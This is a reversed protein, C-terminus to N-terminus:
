FTQFCFDAAALLPLRRNAQWSEACHRDGTWLSRAPPDVWGRSSSGSQNRSASGNGHKDRGSSGMHRSDESTFTPGGVPGHVDGQMASRPLLAQVTGFIIDSQALLGGTCAGDRTVTRKGSDVDCGRSALPPVDVAVREVCDNSIFCGNSPSKMLVVRHAEGPEISVPTMGLLGSLKTCSIDLGRWGLGRAEGGRGDMM